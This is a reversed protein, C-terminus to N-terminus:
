EAEEARHEGASRHYPDDHNHDLAGDVAVLFNSEVMWRRIERECQAM